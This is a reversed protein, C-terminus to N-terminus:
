ALEGIAGKHAITPLFFPVIALSVGCGGPDAHERGWEDVDVYTLHFV